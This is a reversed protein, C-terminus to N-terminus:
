RMNALREADDLWDAVARIVDERAPLGTPFLADLLADRDVGAAPRALQRSGAPAKRGSTRGARSRNRQAQATQGV